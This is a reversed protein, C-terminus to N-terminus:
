TNAGEPKYGVLRRRKMAVPALGVLMQRCEPGASPLILLAAWASVHMDIPQCESHRIEDRTREGPLELPIFVPPMPDSRKNEPLILAPM